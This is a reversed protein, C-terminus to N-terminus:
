TDRKFSMVPREHFKAMENSYIGCTENPLDIPAVTREKFKSKDLM